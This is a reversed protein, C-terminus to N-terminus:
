SLLAEVTRDSEAVAAGLAQMRGAFEPGSLGVALERLMRRRESMLQQIQDGACGDRLSRVLRATSATVGLVLLQQAARQDGIVTNV